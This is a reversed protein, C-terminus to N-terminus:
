VLVHKQLWTLLLCVYVYTLLFDLQMRLYVLVDKKFGIDIVFVCLVM